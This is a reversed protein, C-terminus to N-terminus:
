ACDGARGGLGATDGNDLGAGTPAPAPSRTASPKPRPSPKKTPAAIPAVTTRGPAAVAAGGLRATTRQVVGPRMDVGTATATRGRVDTVRVTYPGPGLGSDVLWYNYDQRVTRRWTGGPAKAEVSRLPNGHNDVRVAFWYRSAGEKIRFTLAGVAPGTVPRYTIPVIGQVPDAIRTFAERSLDIHGAACEPCRDTVKVRVKGNPGTVDLYGGCAAAGDYAANGLAVFLRDAPAEFMCNGMGASDYFTAKGSVAGGAGAVGTGAVGAGAGAVGARTDAVGAGAARAADPPAACAPDAGCATLGVVAALAMGAM